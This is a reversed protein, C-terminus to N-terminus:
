LPLNPTEKDSASAEIAAGNVLAIWSIEQMM